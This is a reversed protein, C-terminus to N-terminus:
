FTNWYKLSLEVLGTSGAQEFMKGLLKKSSCCVINLQDSTYM